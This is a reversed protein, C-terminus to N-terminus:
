RNNLRKRLGTKRRNFYAKLNKDEPDTWYACFSSVSFNQLHHGCTTFPEKGEANGWQCNKCSKGEPHLMNDIERLSNEEETWIQDKIETM